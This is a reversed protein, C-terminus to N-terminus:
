PDFIDFFPGERIDRPAEQRAQAIVTRIRLTNRDARGTGCVPPLLITYDVYVAFDADAALVAHLGTRIADSEYIRYAARSIFAVETQM